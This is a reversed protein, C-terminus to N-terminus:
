RAGSGTEERQSQPLEIVVTVEVTPVLRATVLSAPLGPLGEFNMELYSDVRLTYATRQTRTLSWRSLKSRVCLQRETYLISGLFM